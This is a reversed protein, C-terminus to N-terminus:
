NTAQNVGQAPPPCPRYCLGSLRTVQSQLAQVTQELKAVTDTM